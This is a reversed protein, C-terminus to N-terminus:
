VTWRQPKLPKKPLFWRPLYEAAWAALAVALVLDDHDNERWSEFTENLAETIKVTFKGLEDKLTRAEPLQPAVQLRNNGLLVQLVSALQKKAVRWLGPGSLDQTVAAGATITVAISGGPVGEAMLQELAMEYVAAGVGTADVVLVPYHECLPPAKMFGAVQTIIQRYPTGLPWRQLTPVEYVPRRVPVPGVRWRLLALASPDIQRGLDLGIAFRNPAEIDPKPRRPL